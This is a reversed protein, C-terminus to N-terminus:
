VRMMGRAELFNGGTFKGKNAWIPIPAVINRCPLNAVSELVCGCPL